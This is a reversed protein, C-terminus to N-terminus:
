GRILTEGRIRWNLDAIKAKEADTWAQGGRQLLDLSEEVWSPLVRIAELGRVLRRGMLILDRKQEDMALVDSRLVSALQALYIPELLSIAPPTWDSLLARRVDIGAAQMRQHQRYRPLHYRFKDVLMGALLRVDAYSKELVSPPAPPCTIEGNDRRKIVQRVTEIIKYSTPQQALQYTTRETILIQGFRIKRRM